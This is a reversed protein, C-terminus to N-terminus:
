VHEELISVTDVVRLVLTGIIRDGFKTILILDRDRDRDMTRPDNCTPNQDQPPNSNHHHNSYLWRWKGVREAEDLYGRTIYRTLLLLTAIYGTATTLFLIWDSPTKYLHQSLLALILSLLALTLLHILIARSATQRQQAISDSILHLSTAKETATQALITTLNPLPQDTDNKPPM